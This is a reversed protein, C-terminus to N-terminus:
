PHERYRLDKHRFLTTQLTNAQIRFKIAFAALCFVWREIWSLSLFFFLFLWGLRIWKELAACVEDGCRSLKPVSGPWLLKMLVSEPGIKKQKASSCALSCMNRTTHAREELWWRCNMTCLRRGRNTWLFTYAHLDLLLQSSSHSAEPSRAFEFVRYDPAAMFLVTDVANLAIRIKWMTEMRKQMPLVWCRWQVIVCKDSSTFSHVLPFHVPVKPCYRGTQLWKIFGRPLNGRVGPIRATHRGWFNGKSLEKREQM